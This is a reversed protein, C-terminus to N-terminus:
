KIDLKKKIENYKQKSLIGDQYFEEWDQLYVEKTNLGGFNSFTETFKYLTYIELASKTDGLLLYGHALNVNSMKYEQFQKINEPSIYDEQAKESHFYNFIKKYVNISEIPQNNKLYFWGLSFAIEKENYDQIEDVTGIKSSLCEISEKVPLYLHILNIINNIYRGQNLVFSHPDGHGKREDYLSIEFFGGNNITRYGDLYKFGRDTKFKKLSAYFINGSGYDEYNNLAPKLIESIESFRGMRHLAQCKVEIGLEFYPYIVLISDCYILSKEVDVELYSRSLYYYYRILYGIDNKETRKLGVKLYKISNVYDGSEYFNDAAGIPDTVSIELELELEKLKEKLKEIDESLLDIYEFDVGLDKMMSIMSEAKEVNNEDIADIVKSYQVLVGESTTQDANELSIPNNVANAFEQALNSKLTMWNNISGDVGKSHTIESTEVNVMRSTINCHKDLVYISGIIVFDVGVLKGFNVATSKDFNKSKQISQEDLIKNLQSREMFVIKRPHINNKLDTILMNSMAKGLGDYKDVGSTNEFDLIAVKLQSFGLCPICFFLIFLLRKM